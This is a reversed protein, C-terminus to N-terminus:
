VDYPNGWRGPRTVSIGDLGNTARSVAQMNDGASRKRDIRVPKM